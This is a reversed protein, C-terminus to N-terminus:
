NPAGTQPARRLGTGTVFGARMDAILRLVQEIGFTPGNTEFGEWGDRHQVVAVFAMGGDKCLGQVEHLLASVRPNDSDLSMYDPEFCDAVLRPMEDATLRRWAKVQVTSVSEAGSRVFHGVWFGAAEPLDGSLLMAPDGGCLPLSDAESPAIAVIRHDLAGVGLKLTHLVVWFPNGATTM